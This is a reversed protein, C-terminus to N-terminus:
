ADDDDDDDDQVGCLVIASAVTSTHKHKLSLAHSAADVTWYLIFNVCCFVSPKVHVYLLIDYPVNIRIIDM